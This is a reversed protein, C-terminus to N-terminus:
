KTLFSMCDKYLQQNNGLGFSHTEGTIYDIGKLCGNRGCSVTNEYLALIQWYHSPHDRETAWKPHFVSFIKQKRNTQESNVTLEYGIKKLGALVRKETAKM